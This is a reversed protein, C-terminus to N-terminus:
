LNVELVEPGGLEQFMLIEPFVVKIGVTAFLLLPMYKRTNNCAECQTCHFGTLMITVM